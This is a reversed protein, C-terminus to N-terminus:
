TESQWNTRASSNFVLFDVEVGVRRDGLGLGADASPEAEVIVLALVLAEAVARRPLNILLAQPYPSSRRQRGAGNGGSGSCARFAPSHEGEGVYGCAGSGVLSKIKIERKLYKSAGGGIYVDAQGPRKLFGHFAVGHSFKRTILCRLLPFSGPHLDTSTIHWRDFARKLKDGYGKCIWASAPYGKSVLVANRFEQIYPDLLPM